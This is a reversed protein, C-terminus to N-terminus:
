KDGIDGDKSTSKASDEEDMFTEMAKIIMPLADHDDAGITALDERTKEVKNSFTEYESQNKEGKIGYREAVKMLTNYESASIIILAKNALYAGLILWAIGSLWHLSSDFGFIFGLSVLGVGNYTFAYTFATARTIIRPLSM